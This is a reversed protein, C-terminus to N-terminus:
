RFSMSITRTTEAGADTRAVVNVSYDRHLFPPAASPITFAVGFHGPGRRPLAISFGTVQASVRSVNDSTRVDWSVTDGGHVVPPAASVAYIHPALDVSPPAPPPRVPTL